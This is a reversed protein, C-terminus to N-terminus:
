GMRGYVKIAAGTNATATNLYQFKVFGPSFRLAECIVMAGESSASAPSQWTQEVLGCAATAPNNSYVVPYYTGTLSDSVLVRVGCTATVAFNSPIQLAYEDFEVPIAVGSTLSTNSAADPSATAVLKFTRM